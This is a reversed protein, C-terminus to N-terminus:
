QPATIGGANGKAMEAELLEEFTKPKGAPIPIDDIENRFDGQRFANEDM